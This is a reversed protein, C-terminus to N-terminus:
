RYHRPYHLVSRWLSIRSGRWGGEGREQCPDAMGVPLGRELSVCPINTEVLPDQARGGGNDGAHMCIESDLGEEQYIASIETLTYSHSVVAIIHDREKLGQFLGRKNTKALEMTWVSTIPARALASQSLSCLAKM